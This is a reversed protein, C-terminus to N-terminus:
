SRKETVYKFDPAKELAEKTSSRSVRINGNADRGFKLDSFPVAVLKEGMGLFGGVGIVASNIQGDPGLILDNIDGIKEDNANYVNLGVLKTSRWEDSTQESAYSGPATASADPASPTAMKDSPAADPPALSPEIAPETSPAMKEAPASTPPPAEQAVATLTGFALMAPIAVGSLLKSKM